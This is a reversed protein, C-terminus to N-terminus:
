QEGMLAQYRKAARLLAESPPQPHNLAEMLTESDRISLALMEYQAVTEKAAAQTAQRVFQSLTQGSLAAAREALDKLEPTLRTYIREDHKAFAKGNAHHRQTSETM